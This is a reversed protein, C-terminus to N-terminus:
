DGVALVRVDPHDNSLVLKRDFVQTKSDGCDLNVLVFFYSNLLGRSQVLYIAVLVALVPQELGPKM